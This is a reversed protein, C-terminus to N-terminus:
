KIYPDMMRYYKIFATEADQLTSSYTALTHGNPNTVLATLDIYASYLDKVANYAEVCNEPPSSLSNIISAVNEQNTSIDHVDKAFSYDNYLRQLATNFDPFFEGNIGRTYKDTKEDEIEYLSNYWVDYITEAAEAASESGQVMNDVARSVEQYYAVKLREAEAAKEAEEKAIHAKYIQLGGIIGGILLLLVIVISFINKRKKIKAPSSLDTKNNGTETETENSFSYNVPYGCVPCTQSDAPIESGCEVCVIVEESSLDKGCYPCNNAKDSIEKGCYKCPILAM